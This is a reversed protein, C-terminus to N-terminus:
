QIAELLVTRVDKRIRNDTLYREVAERFNLPNQTLGELERLFDKVELVVEPDVEDSVSLDMKDESTNLPHPEVTGDQHILGVQPKYEAEDTRRRMM